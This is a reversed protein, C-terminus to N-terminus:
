FQVKCFLLEWTLPSRGASFGSRRALTLGIGPPPNQVAATEEQRKEGPSPDVIVAVALFFSWIVWSFGEQFSPEPIYLGRINLFFIDGAALSQKPSPLARLVAYWFFIQLLLPINRFTEVFATALKAILWNKSLRAVGVTFGILTACVVGVCSVPDISCAWWL